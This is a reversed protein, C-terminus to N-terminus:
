ATRRWASIKIYPPMNNHPASGGTFGTSASHTTVAAATSDGGTIGWKAESGGFYDPVDADYGRVAIHQHRPLEDVTLTHQREGGTDGITEEAEAAWLFSGGIRQWVGGFLTEPSIHHYALYISGVPYVTDLLTRGGVTLAGGVRVDQQFEANWVCELTNEQEAYKGFAGCNGGEGLHFAAAETSLSCRVTKEEGLSDVASLEVEYSATKLFGGIVRTEGSVLPTYGSWAGGVARSRLRVSVANRGGIDSCVAECLVAAHEGSGNGTGDAGCRSVSSQLIVPLAYDYVTIAELAASASRGRSDTVTVRPVFSGAQTVIGTVGESESGSQGAFTFASSRISAGYQGQAAVCYRLRTKGKVAANWEPPVSDSELAVTLSVSPVISQPVYVTFPYEKVGIESGDADYTTLQLVGAGATDGPIQQALELPPTWCLATEATHQAVTGQAAGLRYTLTHTFSDVARTVQLVSESGLMLQPVSLTSARPIRPLVVAKEAYIWRVSTNVDFAAKVTVTKTGDESHPVTHIGRYLQTTTNLHVKKAALDAIPVGDLTISGSTDGSENYTGLNTTIQLEILVQSTNNDISASNEVAQVTLQLTTAM